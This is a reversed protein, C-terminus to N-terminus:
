VGNIKFLLGDRASGGRWDPDSNTMESGRDV